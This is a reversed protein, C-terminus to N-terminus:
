EPHRGNEDHEGRDNVLSSGTRGVRKASGVLDGSRLISVPQDSTLLRRRISAHGKRDGLLLELAREEVPSVAHVVRIMRNGELPLAIFDGGVKRPLRGRA